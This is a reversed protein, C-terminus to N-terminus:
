SPRALKAEVIARWVTKVTHIEILGDTRDKSDDNNAFVVETFTHITSQQGIKHGIGGLVASALDAILSFM